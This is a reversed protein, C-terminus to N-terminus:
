TCPARSAASSRPRHSLVFVAGGVALADIQLQPFVHAPEGERPGGDNASVADPVSPGHQDCRSGGHARGDGRYTVIIEKAFTRTRVLNFTCMTHSRSSDLNLKTEAMHKEKTGQEILDMGERITKM